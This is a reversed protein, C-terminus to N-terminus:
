FLISVSSSSFTQFRVREGKEAVPLELLARIIRLKELAVAEPWHPLMASIDCWTKALNIKYDQM